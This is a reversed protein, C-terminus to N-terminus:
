GLRNLDGGDYVVECIDPRIVAIRAGPEMQFLAVYDHAAMAERCYSLSENCLENAAKAFDRGSIERGRLRRDLAAKGSVFEFQIRQLREVRALPAGLVHRTRLEFVAALLEPDPEDRKEGGRSEYEEDIGRLLLMEAEDPPVREPREPPGCGDIEGTEGACGKRRLVWEFAISGYTGFFFETIRYGVADSVTVGAPYLIRNATQHCLGTVGYVIGAESRPRAICEAEVSSGEGTQLVAGGTSRGWCCWARGGACTVYTHDLTAELGPITVPMSHGRLIAM